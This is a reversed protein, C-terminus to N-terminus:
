LAMKGIQKVSQGISDKFIDMASTANSTEDDVDEVNDNMEELKSNLEDQKAILTDQVTLNEKMAAVVQMYENKLNQVKVDQKHLAITEQNLLSNVKAEEDEDVLSLKFETLERIEAKAKEVGDIQLELKDKRELLKDFEKARKELENEKEELQSELESNDLKTGIRLWGDVGLAM